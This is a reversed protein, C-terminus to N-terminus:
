KFLNSLSDSLKKGVDELNKSGGLVQAATSAVDFSTKPNSITGTIKMAAYLGTNVKLDVNENKFNVTGKVDMTTLPIKISVNNTKMLGDTFSVNATMKDYDIGNSSSKSTINNNLANFILLFLKAYKNEALKDVDTITGSNIVLDFNGNSKKMDASVSKLSTKLTANKSILYPVEINDININTYINYYDQKKNTSQQKNTTTQKKDNTTKTNATAKKDNTTTKEIGGDRKEEMGRLTLKDMNLNFRIDKNIFSGDAKFNGKNFVGTATKITINNKSKIVTDINLKSVQAMPLYDFAANSLNLTGSFDKNSVKLNSKLKGKMNYEPLLKAFEDLLLDLSVKLNYEFEKKGWDVTGSINSSSNPIVLSLSEINANQADMNVITNTKFDIKSISFKNLKIFDKFTKEDINKATINCEIKPNNINKIKGSLAFTANNYKTELNDVDFLMKEKDFNALYVKAKAALPLAVHLKNQKADIDCSAECDFFNTFSFDRVSLNFNKISADLNNQKDKFNVNANKISLSDVSVVWENKKQETTATKDNDNKKNNTKGNNATEIGGDKKEEMGRVSQTGTMDEFNFKGEKDKSINIECSQLSINSIKVEKHLLPFPSIKVMFHEAKVFTGSKDNSIKKYELRGIKLSESMQFGQLDIGIFAFSLKDFTVERNFNTRAYDAIYTKIKDEPLFIKIAVVAAIATVVILSVFSILLIKLIKM